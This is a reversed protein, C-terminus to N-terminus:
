QNFITLETADACSATHTHARVLVGSILATSAIARIDELRKQSLSATRYRIYGNYTAYIPNSNANKPQIKIMFDDTNWGGAKVQLIVGEGCNTALAQSSFCGLFICCIALKTLFNSKTKLTKNKKIFIM